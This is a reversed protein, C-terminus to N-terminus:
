IQMIGVSYALLLGCLSRISEWKLFCMSHLRSAKIQPALKNKKEKLQANIKQVEAGSALSAATLTEARGGSLKCDCCRSYGCVAACTGVFM